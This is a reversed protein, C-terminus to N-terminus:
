LPRGDDVALCPLEREVGLPSTLKCITAAGTIAVTCGVQAAAPNMQCQLLFQRFSRTADDTLLPVTPFNQGVSGLQTARILSVRDAYLLGVNGASLYAGQMSLRSGQRALDAGDLVFDEVNIRRYGLAAESAEKKAENFRQLAAANANARCQLRNQEILAFRAPLEDQQKKRQAVDGLLLLPNLVHTPEFPPPASADAKAQEAARDCEALTVVLINDSPQSPLNPSQARLESSVAILFIFALASISRM